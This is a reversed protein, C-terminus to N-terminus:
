LHVGLVGCKNGEDDGARTSFLHQKDDDRKTAM